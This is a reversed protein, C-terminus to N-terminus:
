SFTETGKRGAEEFEVFGNVVAHRFPNGVTFARNSNFDAVLNFELRNVTGAAGDLCLFLVQVSCFDLSM